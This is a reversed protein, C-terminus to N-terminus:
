QKWEMADEGFLRVTTETKNKWLVVARSNDRGNLCCKVTGKKWRGNTQKISISMGLLSTVTTLLNIDVLLPIKFASEPATRPLGTMGLLKKSLEERAM